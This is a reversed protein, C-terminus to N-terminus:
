TLVIRVDFFEDEDSEEAEYGAKNWHEKTEPRPQTPQVTAAMKMSFNLSHYKVSLSSVAFM